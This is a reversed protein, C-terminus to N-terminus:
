RDSNKRPMLWVDYNGGPAQLRISARRQIYPKLVRMARKNLAFAQGASSATTARRFSVTLVASWFASGPEKAEIRVSSPMNNGAAVFLVLSESLSSADIINAEPPCCKPDRGPVPHCTDCPVPDGVTHVVGYASLSSALFAMSLFLLRTM